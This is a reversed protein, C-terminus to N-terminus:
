SKDPVEEVVVDTLVDILEGATVEQDADVVAKVFEQDTEEIVEAAAIALGLPIGKVPKPEKEPM